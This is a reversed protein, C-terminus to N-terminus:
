NRSRVALAASACPPRRRLHAHVSATVDWLRDLLEGRAFIGREEGELLIRITALMAQEAEDDTWCSCPVNAKM